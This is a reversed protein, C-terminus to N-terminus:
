FPFVTKSSNPSSNNVCKPGGPRDHEACACVHVFLVCIGHQEIELRRQVLLLEIQAQQPIKLFELVPIKFVREHLQQRFGHDRHDDPPAANRRSSFTCEMVRSCRRASSSSIFRKGTSIAQLAGTSSAM